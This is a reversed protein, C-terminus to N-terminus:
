EPVIARQWTGRWDTVPRNESVFEDGDKILHYCGDLKYGGWPIRQNFWWWGEGDPKDLKPPNLVKNLQAQAVSLMALDQYQSDYYRRRDAPRAPNWNKSSLDTEYQKSFECTRKYDEEVATKRQEPTLLESMGEGIIVEEAAIMAADEESDTWVSPENM